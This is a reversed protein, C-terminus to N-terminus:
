HSGYMGMQHDFAWITSRHQRGFLDLIEKMETQAKSAHVDNLNVAFISNCTYKMIIDEKFAQQNKEVPM